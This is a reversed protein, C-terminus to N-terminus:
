FRNPSFESTDFDIPREAVLDSVIESTVASLTLGLHGHGFALFVNRSHPSRGIVPRSDPLSPRHGMWERDPVGDLGPLAVRAEGVLRRIRRFDPPETLGAFETGSTIRVGDAMPCMVYYGDAVFVPRNLTLSESWPVNVHYGREAEVPIRLGLQAVIQKSWAGATVVIKEVDHIGLDTMIKRPGDPGMEFDRVSEFKMVGGAALFAEYYAESLKVPQVAFSDNKNFIGISFDRSLGPELQFLEDGEIIDVEMGHERMLQFSLQNRDVDAKNRYVSLWGAPKVLLPDVDHESMLTRHAAVTRRLLPTMAAAHRAVKARSSGAILFKLLWPLSRHLHRVPLRLPSMPNALM